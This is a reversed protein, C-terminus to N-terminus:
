SKDTVGLNYLILIGRPFLTRLHHSSITNSVSYVAGPNSGDLGSDHRGSAREVSLNGGVGRM